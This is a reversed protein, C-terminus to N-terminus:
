AARRLFDEIPRCPFTLLATHRSCNIVEVGVEALPEVLTDFAARMQLYPPNTKDPHEGFWHNRGDEAPAMDYGLLAIRKAGLHVALNIAQYGGNFGTRLATPNRELGHTGANGMVVWGSRQTTDHAAITYKEGKFSLVGEHWEIWCSDAAYLVDAWPALKYADNIAIVFARGRVAEVDERTLSPGGGILVFTTM